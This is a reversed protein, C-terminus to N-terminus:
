LVLRIHCLHENWTENHINVDDVIVKVFQNTWEKLIDAMTRSLTNTTNELEFPMVNWEYLSSKTIVSTKKVDNFAM